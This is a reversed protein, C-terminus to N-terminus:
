VFISQKKWLPSCGIGPLFGTLPFGGVPIVCVDSLYQLLCGSFLCVSLYCVFLCTASLCVPLLCLYMLIYLLASLFVLLWDGFLFDASLRIASLCVSMYIVFLCIVYLCASILCTSLCISLCAYLLRDPLYSLFRSLSYVTASMNMIPLYTYASVLCPQEHCYQM